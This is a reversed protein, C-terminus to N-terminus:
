QLFQICCRAVGREHLFCQFFFQRQQRPVGSLFLRRLVIQDDIQFSALLFGGCLERGKLSFQFIRDQLAIRQHLREAGTFGGQLFFERKFLLGPGLQLLIKLVLQCDLLLGRRLFARGLLSADSFEVLVADLGFFIDLPQFAFQLIQVLLTKREGRRHLVSLQIEMLLDLFLRPDPRLRFLRQFLLEGRQSSLGALSLFGLM